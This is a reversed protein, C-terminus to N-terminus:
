NSDFVQLEVFKTLTTVSCIEHLESLM